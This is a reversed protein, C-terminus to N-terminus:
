TTHETEFPYLVSQGIPHGGCIMEYLLNNYCEAGGRCGKFTSHTACGWLSQTADDM